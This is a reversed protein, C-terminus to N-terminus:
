KTSGPLCLGTVDLLAEMRVKADTAEWWPVGTALYEKAMWADNTEKERRVADQYAKGARKGDHM